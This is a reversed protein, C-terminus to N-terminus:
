RGAAFGAVVARVYDAIQQAVESAQGLMSTAVDPVFLWLIGLTAALTVITVGILFGLAALRPYRVSSTVPKAQLWWVPARRATAPRGSRKAATRRGTAASTGSRRVPHQRTTTASSRPAPRKKAAGAAPPKRAANTRRASHRKKPSPRTM